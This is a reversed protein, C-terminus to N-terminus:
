RFYNVSAEPQPEAATVEIPTQHLYSGALVGLRRAISADSIGVRSRVPEMMFVWLRVVEPALLLPDIPLSSPASTSSAEGGERSPARRLM